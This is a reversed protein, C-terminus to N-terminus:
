DCNQKKVTTSTGTAENERHVTTSECSNTDVSRHEVVPPPPPADRHQIVVGPTDPHVIVADQAFASSSLLM